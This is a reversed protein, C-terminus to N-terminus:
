YCREMADELKVVEESSIASSGEVEMLDSSGFCHGTGGRSPNQAV